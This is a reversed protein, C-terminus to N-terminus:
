RRLTTAACPCCRRAPLEHGPAALWPQSYSNVERSLHGKPRSPRGRGRQPSVKDMGGRTFRNKKMFRAAAAAAVPESTDTCTKMHKLNRHHAAHQHEFEFREVLTYGGTPNKKRYEQYQLIHDPLHHVVGPKAGVVLERMHKDEVNKRHRELLGPKWNERKVCMRQYSKSLESRENDLSFAAENVWGYHQQMSVKIQHRGENTAPSQGFGATTRKVVGIDWSCPKNLHGIQSKTRTDM